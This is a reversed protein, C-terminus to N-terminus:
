FSFFTLSFFDKFLIRLIAQKWWQMFYIEQICNQKSIWSARSTHSCSFASGLFYIKFRDLPVWTIKSVSAHLSWLIQEHFQERQCSVCGTNLLVLDFTHHKLGLFDKWLSFFKWPSGPPSINMDLNPQLIPNIGNTKIVAAIPYKVVLPLWSRLSIDAGPPLLAMCHILNGSGNGRAILDAMWPYIFSARAWSRFGALDGACLQFFQLLIQMYSPLFDAVWIWMGFTLILVAFSEPLAKTVAQPTSALKSRALRCTYDAPYVDMEGLPSPLIANASECRVVSLTM